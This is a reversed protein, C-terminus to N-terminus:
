LSKVDPDLTSLAGLTPGALAAENLRMPPGQRRWFSPDWPIWEGVQLVPPLEPLVQPVWKCAMEISGEPTLHDGNRYRPVFRAEFRGFPELWAGNRFLGSLSIFTAGKSSAISKLRHETEGLTQELAEQSIRGIQNPDQLCRGLVMQKAQIEGINEIFAPYDGLIYVKKGRHALEDLFSELAPVVKEFEGAKRTNRDRPCAWYHALVIRSIGPFAELLRKVEDFAETGPVFVDTSSASLGVGGLGHHRLLRDMGFRLSGAHSDGVLLVDARGPKGISFSGDEGYAFLLAEDEKIWSYRIGLNNATQMAREELFGPRDNVAPFLQNAQVHLRTPWGRGFACALGLVTLGAMGAAVFRFSRKRDWGRSLRTPLEILRWSLYGVLVSIVFMGTYDLFGLRGERVYKWFVMVPWHWLYLSYSIKGVFVFADNGLLRGLPGAAGFAILCAAGLVPLIAAMGPFPSSSTLFVYPILVFLLGAWGAWASPVGLGPFRRADANERGWTALLAGALIEWARFQLLYFAPKAHGKFVEVCALLLSIGALGVLVPLLRRRSWKWLGLCLLPMFIYFQEEVSLSWLHLLPNDHIAAAFYDGAEKYFYRNAMFFTGMTMTDGLRKLPACYYLLCGALFVSLIMAFYTPLIRKIRRHYFEGFTFGGEELQRLIGGTILFGSIVFFVDVGAFGGPCLPAWLHYLVVPIVALARIGDIHPFYAGHVLGHVHEDRREPTMM